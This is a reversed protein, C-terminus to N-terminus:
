YAVAKSPLSASHCAFSLLPIGLVASTIAATTSAATVLVIAVAVQDVLQHVDVTDGLDHLAPAAEAEGGQHHHAVTIAADTEAMALRAFHGFGDALRGFFGLLRQDADRELVAAGQMVFHAAMM